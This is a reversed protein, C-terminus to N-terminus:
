YAFFFAIFVYLISYFIIMILFLSYEISKGM